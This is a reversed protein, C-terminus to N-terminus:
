SRAVYLAAPTFFMNFFCFNRLASYAFPLHYLFDQLDGHNGAANGQQRRDWQHQKHM